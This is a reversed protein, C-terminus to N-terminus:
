SLCCCLLAGALPFFFLFIPLYDFFDFTLFTWSLCSWSTMADTLLSLFPDKTVEHDTKKEKLRKLGELVRSDVVCILLCRLTLPLCFHSPLVLVCVSTTRREENGETTLLLTRPMLVNAEKQHKAKPFRKEAISLM